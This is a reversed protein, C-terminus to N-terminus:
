DSINVDRIFDDSLEIPNLIKYELTVDSQYENESDLNINTIKGIAVYNGHNIWMVGDGLKLSTTWDISITRDIPIDSPTKIKDFEKFDHLYFMEQVKNCSYISNPGATSWHTIFSMPPIGITFDGGNLLYQFTVRNEAQAEFNMIKEVKGQLKFTEVNKYYDDIRAEVNIDDISLNEDRLTSILEFMNKKNEQSYPRSILFESVFKGKFFDPLINVKGREVIPIIFTSNALKKLLTIENYVGTKSDKMKDIYTETCVCIVFNSSNIGKSMFQDLNSGPHNEYLDLQVDINWKKLYIALWQVFSKIKDDDLDRKEWAYSIFVKTKLRFEKIFIIEMCNSQEAPSFMIRLFCNVFKKNKWLGCM